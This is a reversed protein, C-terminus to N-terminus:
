EPYSCQHLFQPKFLPNSRSQYNCCGKTFAVSEKVKARPHSPVIPESPRILFGPEPAPGPGMRPGLCYHRWWPYLAVIPHSVCYLWEGARYKDRPLLVQSFLGACLENSPPLPFVLFNQILCGKWKQELWGESFGLSDTHRWVGPCMARGGRPDELPRLTEHQCFVAVCLGFACLPLLTIGLQVSLICGRINNTNNNQGFCTTQNKSLTKKKKKNKKEVYKSCIFDHLSFLASLRDGHILCLM